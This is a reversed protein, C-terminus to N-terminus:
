LTHLSSTVSRGEVAAFSSHFAWRKRQKINGIRVGYDGGFISM